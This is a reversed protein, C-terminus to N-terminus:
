TQSIQEQNPNRETLIATQSLANSIHDRCDTIKLHYDQVDQPLNEAVCQLWRADCNTYSAGSWSCVYNWIGLFCKPLFAQYTALFSVEGDGAMLAQREFICESAWKKWMWTLIRTSEIKVLDLSMLIRCFSILHAMFSVSALFWHWISLRGEGSKLNGVLPATDARNWPIQLSRLLPVFPM